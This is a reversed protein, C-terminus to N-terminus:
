WRSVDSGIRVSLGALEVEVATMERRLPRRFNGDDVELAEFRDRLPRIAFEVLNAAPPASTPVDSAREIGKMRGNVTQEIM